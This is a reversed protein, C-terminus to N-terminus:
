EGHLVQPTGQSLKSSVIRVGSDHKLCHKYVPHFFDQLLSSMNTPSDIDYGCLDLLVMLNVNCGKVDLRIYTSWIHFEERNM